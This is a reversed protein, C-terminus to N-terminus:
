AGASGGPKPRSKVPKPGVVPIDVAVPQVGPKPGDDGARAHSVVPPAPPLPPPPVVPAPMPVADPPPPIGDADHANARPEALRGMEVLRVAKRATGSTPGYVASLVGVAEAASLHRAPDTESQRATATWKAAMADRVCELKHRPTGSAELRALLEVAWVCPPGNVVADRVARKEAILKKEEDRM